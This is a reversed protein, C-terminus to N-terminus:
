AKAAGADPASAPVTTSATQRVRAWAAQIEDLGERTDPVQGYHSAVYAETIREVERECGPFAKRLAWLHEFPTHTRPRAYGREAALAVTAAYVRRISHTALRRQLRDWGPLKPNLRGLGEQIVEAARDGLSRLVAGEERATDETIQRWRRGTFVILRVVLFALVLLLLGACFSQFTSPDPARGAQAGGQAADSPGPESVAVSLRFGTLTILKAGAYVLPFILASVIPAILVLILGFGQGLRLLQALAVTGLLLGSMLGLQTLWYLTFPSGRDQSRRAVEEVRGLGLTV